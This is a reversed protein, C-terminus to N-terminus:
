SVGDGEGPEADDEKPEADCLGGDVDSGGVASGCSNDDVLGMGGGDGCFKRAKGGVRLDDM